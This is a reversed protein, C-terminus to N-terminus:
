GKPVVRDHIEPQNSYMSLAVNTGLKSFLAVAAASMLTGNTYVEVLNYGCAHAMRVVDLINRGTDRYLFPEGGILQCERCGLQYAQLLVRRWDEFRMTEGVSKNGMGSNAYCHVCRLNCGDSVIELWIFHLERTDANVVTDKTLIFTTPDPQNQCEEALGVECLNKWYLEDGLGYTLVQVAVDNVNYVKGSELALLAGHTAGLVLKVSEKLKFM